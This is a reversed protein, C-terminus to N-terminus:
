AEFPAVTLSQGNDKAGLQLLFPAAVKAWAEAKPYTGADEGWASRLMDTDIVGPNLAVAAMGKPLEQALAKTLGEIAFKSACYPAVQPSTSRGWGSSFNVIVGQKRAVMAPVFHRIMNAVGRVNVDLVKAFERDEIEWLPALRNMVGANNILLDPAAENELVKAAWIAVKTDQAVDVASFDHPAQHAMRLDFIAEGGRGCGIVAHGGRIFEEALARGLGRTAGTIVIKM